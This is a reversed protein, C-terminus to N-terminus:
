ADEWAVQVAHEQLRERRALVRETGAALVLGAAASWAVAAPGLWAALATMGIGVAAMGAVIVTGDVGTPKEARRALHAAAAAIAAGLTAALLVIRLRRDLDNTLALATAIGHLAGMSGGWLMTLGAAVLARLRVTAACSLLLWELRRETALVRAAVGGTAIALPIGAAALAIMEQADRDVAGNNRAALSAVLAGLLAVLAGRGLTIADRRVLVAAHTLALALPASRATWATGTAAAREPARRFAAALGISGSAIAIVLLVVRPANLVIATVLVATATLEVITRPRAVVIASAAAAAMGATIAALPGAGAGFLIMWPAQLMVLHAGHVARFWPLPVPLARLVFTEPTAILARAAPATVLIWAAWLCVRAATSAGLLTLVDRARMGYGGFIIASALGVAAIPPTARLLAPPGAARTLASALALFPTDRIRRLM